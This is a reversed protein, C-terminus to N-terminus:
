WEDNVSLANPYRIRNGRERKREQADIKVQFATKVMLKGILM